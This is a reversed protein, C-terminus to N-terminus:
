ANISALGCPSNIVGRCRSSGFRSHTFGESGGAKAIFSDMDGDFHHKLCEHIPKAIGSIWCRLGNTIEHSSKDHCQSYIEVIMQLKNVGKAKSATKREEALDITGSMRRFPRSQETAPISHIQPNLQTPVNVNEEDDNDSPVIQDLQQCDVTAIYARQCLHLIKKALDGFQPGLREAETVTSALQEHIDQALDDVLIAKRIAPPHNKRNPNLAGTGILHQIYAAAEQQITRNSCFTNISMAQQLDELYIARWKPTM